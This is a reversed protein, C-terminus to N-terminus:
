LKSKLRMIEIKKNSQRIKNQNIEYNYIFTYIKAKDLLRSKKTM